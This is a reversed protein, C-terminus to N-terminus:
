PAGLAGMEEVGTGCRRAQPHVSPLWPSWLMLRPAHLCALCAMGPVGMGRFKGRRQQLWAIDRPM